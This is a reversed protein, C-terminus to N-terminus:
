LKEGCNPCKKISSILTMGCNPCKVILPKKYNFDLTKTEVKRPLIVKYEEKNRNRPSEYKNHSKFVKIKIDRGKVIFGYLFLWLFICVLIAVILNVKGFILILFLLVIFLTELGILINKRNIRKM